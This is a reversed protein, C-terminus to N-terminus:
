ECEPRGLRSGLFPAAGAFLALAPLVFWGVSALALTKLPVGVFTQPFCVFILKLAFLTAFWAVSPAIAAIVRTTSSGEGRKALLAATAGCIPLVFLWPEPVLLMHDVRDVRLHVWGLWDCINILASTLLLNVFMPIWLSRTRNMGGEERKATQIARAFKRWRVGTLDLAQSGDDARSQEKESDELHSALEAIVEDKSEPPLDLSALHERIEKEWDRM